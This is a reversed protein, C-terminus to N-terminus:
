DRAAGHDWQARRTNRRGGGAYALRRVEYEHTGREAAEVAVGAYGLLEGAAQLCLGLGVLPLTSWPLRVRRTLQWVGPLIRWLLVPPILVAGAVYALRRIASWRRGRCAAIAVGVQFRERAWDASRSVNVHDVRAAPEFYVRCGRTRMWVVLEDGFDLVEDLREGLELLMSRQFTVDHFPVERVEGGPM